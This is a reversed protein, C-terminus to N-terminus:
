RRAKSSGDGVCSHFKVARAREPMAHNLGGLDIM